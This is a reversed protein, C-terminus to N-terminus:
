AAKDLEQLKETRITKIKDILVKLEEEYEADGENLGLVKNLRIIENDCDDPTATEPDFYTNEQNPQGEPSTM